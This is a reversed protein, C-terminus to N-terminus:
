RQHEEHNHNMGDGHKLTGQLTSVQQRLSDVTQELNRSSTPLHAVYAELRRLTPNINGRIIEIANHEDSTLKHIILDDEALLDRDRLIEDHQQRAFLFITTMVPIILLDIIQALSLVPNLGYHFAMIALTMVFTTRHHTTYALFFLHIYTLPYFVSETNGTAGVLLLFGFTAVIMEVSSFSPAVHWWKANDLRKLILYGAAAAAFAQLSFQHLFPIQLWLFVVIVTLVLLVAHLPQSM